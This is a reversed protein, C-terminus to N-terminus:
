ELVIPSFSSINQPRRHASSGASAHPHTRVLVWNAGHVIGNRGPCPVFVEGRNFYIERVDWHCSARYYGSISCIQGTSGGTDSAM